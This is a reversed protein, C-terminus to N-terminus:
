RRTHRLIEDTTLRTTAAGRLREVLARGRTQRAARRMRVADGVVEFEVETGPELGLRERVELPITVQGKSTLRM